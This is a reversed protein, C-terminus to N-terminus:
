YLRKKWFIFGSVLSSVLSVGVIGIFAFPSDNFPLNVNMGYLSAILTPIMIILSIITLRKMVVNLNNSIVSAFADMMGSLINSYINAMAIAQKNETLCDELLDVDSETITFMALKQLKEMVLENGTLSTTFFTLSKEISLLQVLENNKISRQLEKEIANTKRNIEKLHRLFYTASRMFLHLVFSTKKGLVFNRVRNQIFDKVVENEHLSITLIIDDLLIIGLPMTIFPVELDPQHLPLRMIILFWNDDREIRSQEDMDLIDLVVDPPILYEQQLRQIEEPTPNVVNVWCGKTSKELKELTTESQKWITIMIKGEM